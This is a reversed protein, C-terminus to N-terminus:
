DFDFDPHYRRGYQELIIESKDGQEIENPDPSIEGLLKPAKNEKSILYGKVDNDSVKMLNIVKLYNVAICHHNRKNSGV